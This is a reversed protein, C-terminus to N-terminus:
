RNTVETQGTLELLISTILNEALGLKFANDPLPDAAALEARAAARASAATIPQGRLADEAVRARWPVTGVGGLAIRVDTAMGEGAGDHAGDALEVAAAVSVLAFAYSARDRVKRYTSRRAAPVAPLDVATILEGRALTNDRSPDDGPTRFFDALAVERTGDPGEVQLVADVAALAVALDSPNTAICSASGGLVALDRHHGTRAPCGSGPERKNCPKTTDTFYGCRTRQVLNGGVTAVNRLQGSAGALLARTVLPYDRRITRHVALDSNRAGAGIRVGGDPRPEIETPLLRTVDVLRDPTAVGLKMLDVLNTGGALFMAGPEAAVTAIAAARDAARVYDFPKM